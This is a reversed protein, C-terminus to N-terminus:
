VVISLIIGFLFSFECCLWYMFSPPFLLKGRFSGSFVRLEADGHAFHCHPHSCRGRQYSM